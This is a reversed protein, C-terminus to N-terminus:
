EDLRNLDLLLSGMYSLVVENPSDGMEEHMDLALAYLKLSGNFGKARRVNGLQRLM